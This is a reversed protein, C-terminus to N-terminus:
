PEDATAQRSLEVIYRARAKEVLGAGYAEMLAELQKHEVPRLAGETNKSLLQDLLRQTARPFKQQLVAHAEMLLELALHHNAPHSLVAELFSRREPASLQLYAAALQEATLTIEVVAM